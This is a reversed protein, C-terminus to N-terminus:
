RRQCPQHYAPKKRAVGTGGGNNVTFTSSNGGQTPNEEGDKYSTRVLTNTVNKSGIVEPYYTYFHVFYHVVNGGTAGEDGFIDPYKAAYEEGRGGLSEYTVGNNDVPDGVDGFNCMFTETNTAEDYYIGWQLDAAKIRAEFAKITEGDNQGIRTM